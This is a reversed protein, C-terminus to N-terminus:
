FLFLTFIHINFGLDFKRLLAIYNFLFLKELTPFDTLTLNVTQCIKLLNKAKFQM